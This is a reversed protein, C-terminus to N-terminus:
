RVRAVAAITGGEWVAVGAGSASLRHGSPDEVAVGVAQLEGTQGLSMELKM